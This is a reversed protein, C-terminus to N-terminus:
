CEEKVFYHYCEGDDSFEIRDTACLHKLHAMAESVAFWKQAHPFDDWNKSRIEWTMRSAIEYATLGPNDSIISATENLRREHHALLDDIRKKYDGKNERHGVFVIDAEVDRIKKLSALYSGLSDKLDPWDAINPTIDFLIHDGAFLIKNSTEYLCMHGPTHGPTEIAKLRFGEFDFEYGDHVPIIDDKVDSAYIFAPNITRNALLEDKPYGAKSFRYELDAWRKDNMSLYFKCLEADVSGMYVRTEDHSIRKMLGCHDSHLHTFFIDTISMDVGLSDLSAKLTEYCEDM